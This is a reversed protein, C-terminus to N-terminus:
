GKELEVGGIASGGLDYAPPTVGVAVEAPTLKDAEPLRPAHIAVPRCGPSDLLPGM